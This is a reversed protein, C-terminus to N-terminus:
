PTKIIMDKGPAWVGDPVAPTLGVNKLATFAVSNSNPGMPNYRTKSGQITRMQDELDTQKACATPDNVITIAKAGPDWDTSAPEYRGTETVIDGYPGATDDSSSSPNSGSGSSSDTGTHSSGGSLEKSIGSGRAPGRAGPGGRMYYEQGTADTFV